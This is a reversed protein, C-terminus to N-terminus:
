SDSELDNELDSSDISDDSDVNSKNDSSLENSKDNSSENSQLIYKVNDFTVFYLKIDNNYNYAFKEQRIDNEHQFMWFINKKQHEYPKVSLYKELINSYLKQRSKRNYFKDRLNINSINKIKELINNEKIVRSNKLNSLIFTKIWDQHILTQGNILNNVIEKKFYLQIHIGIFYGKESGYNNIKVIFNNSKQNLLINIIKRTINSNHLAFSSTNNSNKILSYDIIYNLDGKEINDLLYVSNIKNKLCRDLLPIKGMSKKYCIDLYLNKEYRTNDSGAGITLPIHIHYFSAYSQSKDKFTLSNSLSIENNPSKIKKEELIDSIFQFLNKIDNQNSKRNNQYCNINKILKLIVPKIKKYKSYLYKDPCIKYGDNLDNLFCIFSKASIIHSEVVINKHKNFNKKITERSAM